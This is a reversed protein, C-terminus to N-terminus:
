IHLYVINSLMLKSEPRMRTHTFLCPLVCAQETVHFPDQREDVHCTHVAEREKEYLCVGKVRQPARVGTEVYENIYIHAHFPLPFFVRKSQSM